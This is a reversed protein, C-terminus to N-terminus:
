AAPVASSRFAVSRTAMFGPVSVLDEPISHGTGVLAIPLRRRAAFREVACLSHAEDAMNAVLAAPNLSRIKEYARDISIESFRADVVFLTLVHQVSSLLLRFDDLQRDPLAGVSPLDLIGLEAANGGGPWPIPAGPESVAWPVGILGALFSARHGCGVQGSDITIWCCKRGCPIGQTLLLKACLTTKGVATPGLLAIAKSAAVRARLEGETWREVRSSSNADDLSSLEAAADRGPQGSDATLGHAIESLNQRLTSYDIRNRAGFPAGDAAQVLVEYVAEIPSPSSLRAASLLLTEEGLATRAIRM